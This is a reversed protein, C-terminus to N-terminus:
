ERLIASSPSLRGVQLELSAVSVRQDFLARLQSSRARTAATEARLLDAITALGAQYRNRIIRLSEEAQAFSQATVEIVARATELELFAKQVQLRISQELHQRMAELKRQQFQSEALRAQDAGGSFLNLRFNVGAMWNNGARSAFSQDDTEWSGFASIIPWFESRSSQVAVEGLRQSLLSQRYDPRLELALKQLSELSGTEHLWPKLPQTLEFQRQLGQGMEFNLNTQALELQHRAKLRQEEREARHVQVSLLDSEVVLGAKLMAEARDQDAVASKVADEAVRLMEKALLTEYYAKLVRFVVESRTKQLEEESISRSLRSQDVAKRTRRSDFLSQTLSIKNQFNSLPAPVNLSNLAFNAETFRRQTLLSGFVYVPNNGRTVTHDFTVKPLYGAFAFRVRASTADVTFEAAKILSNSELALSVAKELPLPEAPDQAVALVRCVFLCFVLLQIARRPRFLLLSRSMTGASDICSM